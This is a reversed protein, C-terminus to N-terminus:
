QRVFLFDGGDHGAKRINGYEPTQDSNLMVQKRIISFLQNGDLVGDNDMLANLFSSAFVSNNGGGVDSVPELGGSTLVTRAKKQVIKNIYNPSKDIIKIGRTLTGSFCSDAVVMVHKAQMTRVSRMITENAVWHVQNDNEADVPLWFGEDAAKDLYGHGAYYVLLNDNSSISNRLESLASVIEDRTANTLLNVNFKYKSRLLSAVDNADNVANSLSSLHQYKDNGIVLAHYNGYNIEPLPPTPPITLKKIRYIAIKAFTGAPFEDLYIQYEQPDDSDKISNWLQIEIPVSNLELDESTASEAQKESENPQSLCQNQSTSKRYGTECYYGNSPHARAIANSPLKSCSNSNTFAKYFGLNCGFSEGSPYGNEPTNGVSLTKYLCRNESKEYGSNCIFYNSNYSSSSNSPVRLCSSTSNNRYFNTNCTWGSGTKHSNHPITQAVKCGNNYREYGNNCNWGNGSVYANPPINYGPQNTLSEENLINATSQNRMCTFGNKVYGANCEWSNGSAYGYKPIYIEAFVFDLFCFSLLLLFLKKM